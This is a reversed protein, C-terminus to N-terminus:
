KKMATVVWVILLVVVIAAFGLVVAYQNEELWTPEELTIVGGTEGGTTEPTIVEVEEGTASEEEETAEEGAEESPAIVCDKVTLDLNESVSKSNYKALVAIKYVGAKIKEGVDLNFSKEYVADEDNSEELGFDEKIDLGLADNKVTLVVDEDDGGINYLEVDLATSRECDVTDRSLDAANFVLKHREKNIILALSDMSFDYSIGNEDESTIKMVITHTSEDEVLLPVVFEITVTKKDDADLDFESIDKEPELDDGDELDSIYLDDFEVGEISIGIKDDYMNRFEVKLKVKSGPKVDYEEEDLIEDASLTDEKDGDIYVVIEDIKLMEPVSGTVLGKEGFVLAIVDDDDVDKTKIDNINLEEWINKEMIYAKIESTPCTGLSGVRCIKTANTANDYQFDFSSEILADEIDAGDPLDNCDTDTSVDISNQDQVVVCVDEVKANAIGILAM